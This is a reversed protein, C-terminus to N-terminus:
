RGSAPRFAGKPASPASVRLAQGVGGEEEERRRRKEKRAREREERKRFFSRPVRSQDRFIALLSYMKNWLDFSSALPMGSRNM